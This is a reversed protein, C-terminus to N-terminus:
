APDTVEASEDTMLGRERLAEVLGAGNPASVWETGPVERAQEMVSPMGSALVQETPSLRRIAIARVHDPYSQAFEAYLDPDHQGDDGVLTWRITPFERALRRLQARKHASGSRFLRERTPGWDTLLLPGPPYLHRGLFRALTPAVNWAGTSLYIVPAGPHGTAWREYFVAMGPVPSRAHETLVFTNWAALAARPLTTVMVTDDIDSVLGHRMAPDVIYVPVRVPDAGDAELLIERWGPELDSDVVTDILGSSDTTVTHTRSGVTVRVTEGKIQVTLFSRWGRVLEPPKADKDEPRRLLVRALVRVWGPGGYGTYGLIDDQWGRRNKLRQAVRTNVVDGIGTVVRLATASANNSGRPPPTPADQAMAVAQCM